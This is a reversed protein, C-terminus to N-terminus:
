SFVDFLYREIDSFATWRAGGLYANTLSVVGVNREPSFSMRTSEGYDGGTHGLLPFGWFREEYWILGQRWYVLGPVQSRRSERVTEPELVQVGDFTGQNMFAGLWRALHRASTRLAGDPYDPYGYHFYPAFGGNDRDIHYPMALNTTSIDALRFGSNGMGLPLLIRQKCLENFDVGSAVEAVYGALAVALNSYAYRRGPRREFFNSTRYEDGGEEFYSRCFDGLSIPSDGHFYLTPDSSPTGWVSWRDRIASTHTLLQRMTIPANPAAPIRVEFPLYDNVDTDLDIEGDEVVTMIGAATVTKSVSALQFVTGRGTEIDAEIDAWGVGGSWVVENGKVVSVGIGPTNAERLARLMHRRIEADRARADRVFSFPAIAGVATALASRRLLERRTFAGDRLVPRDTSTPAIRGHHGTAPGGWL